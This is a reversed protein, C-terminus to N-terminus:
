AQEKKQLTAKLSGDVALEISIRFCIRTTLSNFSYSQTHVQEIRNILQDFYCFFRTKM